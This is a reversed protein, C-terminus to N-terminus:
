ERGNCAGPQLNDGSELYRVLFFRRDRKCWRWGPLRALAAPTWVNEDIQGGRGIRARARSAFARLLAKNHPTFFGREDFAIQFWLEIHFGDNSTLKVDVHDVRSGLEAKAIAHLDALLARTEEGSLDQYASARDIDVIVRQSLGVPKFGTDFKCGNKLSLMQRTPATDGMSEFRQTALEHTPPLDVPDELSLGQEALYSEVKSTRDRRRKSRLEKRSHSIGDGGELRKGDQIRYIAGQRKRANVAEWSPLPLYLGRKAEQAKYPEQLHTSVEAPRPNTEADSPTEVLRIPAVVPRTEASTVPRTEASTQLGSRNIRRPATPYDRRQILSGPRSEGTVPNIFLGRPAFRNQFVWPEEPAEGSSSSGQAKRLLVQRAPLYVGKAGCGHCRFAYEGPKGPYSRIWLSPVRDAHYPCRIAGPIKKPPSITTEEPKRRERAFLGRAELTSRIRFLAELQANSLIPFTAFGSRFHERLEESAEISVGLVECVRLRDLTSTKLTVDAAGRTSNYVANNIFRNTCYLATGGEHHVRKCRTM